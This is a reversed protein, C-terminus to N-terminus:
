KVSIVKERLALIREVMEQRLADLSSREYDVQGIWTAAARGLYQTDVDASQRAKEALQKLYTEYRIDDVAERTAEWALTDIYGDDQPYVIMLGRLFAEKWVYFETWDDRGVIYQSFMDYNNRWTLWGYVRRAYDPNEPGSHPDGYWAAIFDPNGAHMADANLRSQTRPQRPINGADLNFLFYPHYVTSVVTHGGAKQVERWTAREARVFAPPAEDAGYSYAKVDSGFVEKIAAMARNVRNSFQLHAEYSRDTDKVPDSTGIGCGPLVCMLTDTNLGYKELVAKARKADAKGDKDLYTITGSLDNGCVEGELIMGWPHVICFRNGLVECSKMPIPSAWRWLVLAEAKGSADRSVIMHGANMAPYPLKLGWNGTVRNACCPPKCCCGALVLGAGITMVKAINM